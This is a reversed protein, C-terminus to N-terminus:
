VGRNGRIAQCRSPRKVLDGNLPEGCRATSICWRRHPATTVGNSLHHELLEAEHGEGERSINGTAKEEKEEEKKM